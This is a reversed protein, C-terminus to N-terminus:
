KICKGKAEKDIVVDRYTLDLRKNYNDGSKINELDALLEKREHLEKKHKDEIIHKKHEAAQCELVGFRDLLYRCSNVHSCEINSLLCKQSKIIM